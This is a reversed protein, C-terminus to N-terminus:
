CGEGAARLQRAMTKRAEEALTLYDRINVKNEDIEADTMPRRVRAPSGLVLQADSIHTRQTVLAGAGILCDQGTRVDNLLIAGMGILTRDGVTSSHVVAAHGITVEDGIVVPIAEDVHIVCNDQVNSRSGISVSAQDGRIVANYWVSSERGITVAGVIRAGPAIYTKLGITVQGSITAGAGVCVGEGLTVTGSICVGPEICVGAGLTVAGSVVSGAALCVDAGITVPGSVRAAATIAGPATHLDTNM